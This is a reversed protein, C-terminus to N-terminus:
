RKFIFKFFRGHKAAHAGVRTALVGRLYSCLAQVTDWFQYETYEASVSAPYGIPLFTARVLGWARWRSGSNKNEVACFRDGQLEYHRDQRTAGLSDSEVM